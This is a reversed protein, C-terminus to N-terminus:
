HEIILLLLSSNKYFFFQSSYYHWVWNKKIKRSIWIIGFDFLNWSKLVYNLGCSSWYMFLFICRTSCYSMGRGSRVTSISKFTQIKERSANIDGANCNSSTVSTWFLFLCISIKFSIFRLFLCKRCSVVKFSRWILDLTGTIPKHFVLEWHAM